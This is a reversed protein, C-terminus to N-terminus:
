NCAHLLKFYKSSIASTIKVKFFNNRMHLATLLIQRIINSITSFLFLTVLHFNIICSM